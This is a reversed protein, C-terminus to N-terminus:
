KFTTLSDLKDVQEQTSCRIVASSPIPDIGRMVRSGVDIAVYEGYPVAGQVCYKWKEMTFPTSPWGESARGWSGPTDGAIDRLNM